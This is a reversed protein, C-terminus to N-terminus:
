KAEIGFAMLAARCVALSTTRARVPLKGFRCYWGETAGLWALKFDYAYELMHDVVKREAAVSTSYFPVVEICCATHGFYSVLDNDDNRLDCFCDKLYIPGEQASFHSADQPFDFPIIRHQGCCCEPDSHYGAWGLVNLRMVTRAVLEDLERGVRM